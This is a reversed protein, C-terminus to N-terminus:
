TKFMYHGYMGGVDQVAVPVKRMGWWRAGMKWERAGDDVLEGLEPRRVYWGRRGFEQVQWGPNSSRRNHKPRLQQIVDDGLEIVDLPSSQPTALVCSSDLLSMKSVSKIGSLDLYRLPTSEWPQWALEEDEDDYEAIAIAPRFFANIDAVSVDAFALGLEELHKTLPVLLKVNASNIKAGGLNLSRLTRPLCPILQEVDDEYLLTFRSADAMLNLYVLTDKTAPHTTIFDVVAPGTIQTCRGLNLHTLRATRPISLLAEDTIMTHAVDLHTLNPLRPLLAEFVPPQLTSCEHLSLCKLHILANSGNMDAVNSFATTFPRSSCACFDLAEVNTEFFLKYLFIESLEDDIHEHVLFEVLGPMLQLCLQLTQPTVNQIESSAQRTRGFGISNYHSFDLRRVLSRLYDDESLRTMVKRFTESRPIIINKYLAGLTAEYMAKSTRLCALIDASRPAYSNPRVEEALLGLIMELIEFPLNDLTAQTTKKQAPFTEPATAPSLSTGFIESRRLNEFSKSQRRRALWADQRKNAVEADSLFSQPLGDEVERISDYSKRRRRSRSQSFDKKATGEIM